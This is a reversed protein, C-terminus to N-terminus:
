HLSIGSATAKVLTKQPVQHPSFTSMKFTTSKAQMSFKQSKKSNTEMWSAPSTRLKWHHPKSIKVLRKSNISTWTAITSNISLSNNKPSLQKRSSIKRIMSKMRTQWATSWQTYFILFYFFIVTRIIFLLIEITIRFYSAKFITPFRWNEWFYKNKIIQMLIISFRWM